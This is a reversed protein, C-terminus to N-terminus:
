SSQSGVRARSAQIAEENQVRRWHLLLTLFCVFCIILSGFSFTVMCFPSPGCEGVDAFLDHAEGDPLTDHVEVYHPYCFVVVRSIWTECPCGMSCGLLQGSNERLDCVSDVGFRRKVLGRLREDTLVSRNDKSQNSQEIQGDEIQGHATSRTTTTRSHATLVDGEESTTLTAATVTVVKASTSTVAAVSGDSGGIMSAAAVLRSTSISSAAGGVHLRPHRARQLFFDSTSSGERLAVPALVVGQSANSGSMGQEFGRLEAENLIADDGEPDYMHDVLLDSQAFPWSVFLVVSLFSVSWTPQPDFLACRQM